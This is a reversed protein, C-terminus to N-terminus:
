NAGNEDRVDNKMENKFVPSAGEDSGAAMYPTGFVVARALKTAGVVL